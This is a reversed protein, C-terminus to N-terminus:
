SHGSHDLAAAASHLRSIDAEVHRDGFAALGSEAWVPRKAGMGTM